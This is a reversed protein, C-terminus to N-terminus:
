KVLQIKDIADRITIESSLTSYQNNKQARALATKLSPLAARATAGLKGLCAATWFVLDDRDSYMCRSLADVLVICAKPDLSKLDRGRCLLKSYKIADDSRDDEIAQCLSFCLSLSDDVQLPMLAMVSIMPLVIM